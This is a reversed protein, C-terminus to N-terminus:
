NRRMGVRTSLSGSGVRAAIVMPLDSLATEITRICAGCHADPVAFELQRSGDGLPRSLALLAEGDAEIGGSSAQVAFEGPACCTM